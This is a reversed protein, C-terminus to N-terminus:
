VQGQSHTEEAAPETELGRDLTLQCSKISGVVMAALVTRQARPMSPM